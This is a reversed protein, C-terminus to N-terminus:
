DEEFGCSISIVTLFSLSGLPFFYFASLQSSHVEAYHCEECYKKRVATVSKKLWLLVKEEINHSNRLDLPKGPLPFLFDWLITLVALM